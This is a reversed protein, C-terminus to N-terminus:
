CLVKNTNELRYLAAKDVGYEGKLSSVADASTWQQSLPPLSDFHTTFMEFLYSSDDFQKYPAMWKSIKYITAQLVAEKLRKAIAAVWLCDTYRRMLFSSSLAVGM